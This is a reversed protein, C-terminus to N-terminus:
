AHSPEFNVRGVQHALVLCGNGILQREQLLVEVQDV